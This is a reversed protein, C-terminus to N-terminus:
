IGTQIDKGKLAGSIAQDMAREAFPRTVDNLEETKAQILNKDEMTIALQLAQMANASATLEEKTLISANKTLFKETVSLMQEAETRAEVLARTAIDEKAHTISDMLRQEVEEDTLGYQPKIDISQSVGSRLEKASVQLIGDANILFSVDVKPLGAPMAPIGTLTFEGLKRNDKVLDREGQYVAIQIGSQGDKQTTYQRGAKTPIKSNRPLLVDMLGGMTEIGLSLPTIDLLLMSQNNGALIDAQVAAGLAVVEDPNVSDNVEQNFFAGVTKKVLPVRTSGGVMLVTNIDSVQLGADKMANVCCDMTRNIIPQVLEEFVQKTISIKEGAFETEFIDNNSLHIKAKEAALRLQQKLEKHQDLNDISWQKMWYEIIARDLDDGGLYTDGNTSLVEFIGNAIRLISIDFTGGGLDYVAITKEETPNLGLGYALSAATPENIIRLVDLGALKGADRTAQRQADNFYAPVTIVAKTVPTKLIHEARKKLEELIFSSLEIPSYFKNGVQVKVLSDTNDDIVKYAFFDQHTQIDKYSKGMLRKASFITNAPDSELFPKAREGVEVNGYEDFHVVSPVISSGDFEKLATPQKTDPHIIAVLSNTTGLDIGVIMEAQQLSGTAINIGIKAM